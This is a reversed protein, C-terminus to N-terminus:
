GSRMLPRALCRHHTAHAWTERPLSQGRHQCGACSSGTRSACRGLGGSWRCAAPRSGNAGPHRLRHLPLGRDRTITWAPNQQQQFRCTATAIHVCPGECQRLTTAPEQLGQDRVKGDSHSDAPKTGPCDIITTQWPTGTTVCDKGKMSGDQQVQVLQAAQRSTHEAGTWYM